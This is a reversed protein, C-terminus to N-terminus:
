YYEIYFTAAGATINAAKIELQLQQSGVAPLNVANGWDTYPDGGVTGLAGFPEGAIGVANILNVPVGAWGLAINAGGGVFVTTTAVTIYNVRAGNPLMLPVPYTGIAGSDGTASINIQFAIVKTTVFLQNM